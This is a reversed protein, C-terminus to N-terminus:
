DAHAHHAGARTWWWALAWAIALALIGAAGTDMGHKGGVFRLGTPVTATVLAAIGHEGIAEALREASVEAVRETAWNATLLM